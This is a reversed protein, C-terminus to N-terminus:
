AVQVAVVGAPVPQTTGNWIGSAVYATAPTGPPTPVGPPLAAGGATPGFYLVQVGTWGAATLASVLSAQDTIGAALQSAWGYKGGKTFTTTPTVTGPTLNPTPVAQKTKHQEYYVAGFTGAVLVGAGLWLMTSRKM